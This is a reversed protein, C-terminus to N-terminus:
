EDLPRFSRRRAGRALRPAALGHGQTLGCFGSGSPARVPPAKPLFYRECRAVWENHLALCAQAEPASVLLGHNEMFIVVPPHGHKKEYAEAASKITMALRWGPDTYPVWLPPLEGAPTIEGLAKLGPGCNLANAAVPHTHIVVRGLMAHLATEVSPRGSGGFSQPPCINCCVRKAPM